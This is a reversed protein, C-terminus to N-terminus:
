SRLQRTVICGARVGSFEILDLISCRATTRQNAVAKVIKEPDLKLLACRLQRSQARTIRRRSYAFSCCESNLVGQARCVTEIRAADFRGIDFRWARIQEQFQRPM